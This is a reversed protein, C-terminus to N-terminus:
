GAHLSRAITLLDCSLNFFQFIAETRSFIELLFMTKIETNGYTGKMGVPSNPSRVKKNREAM